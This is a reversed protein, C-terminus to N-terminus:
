IKQSVLFELEDPYTAKSHFDGKYQVFVYTSNVSTIVGDENKDGHRVVGSGISTKAEDITMIGEKRVM